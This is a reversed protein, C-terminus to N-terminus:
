IGTINRIWPRLNAVNSYVGPYGPRACGAGWSVIGYLVGNASLPGGGDGQCADKGGNSLGACIMRPTILGYLNQCVRRNIIPVSIKLLQTSGIISGGQTVAGWGTVNVISNAAIELTALPIPKTSVSFAIPGSIELLGINYDFTYSNYESHRVVRRVSYKIGFNVDANGVRVTYASASSTICSAATVVWSAGIISGGCYHRGNLQVSVQHPHAGIPAYVGGVIRPDAVSPMALFGSSWGCLAALIFFRLM